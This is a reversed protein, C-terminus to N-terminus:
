YRGSISWSACSIRRDECPPVASTISLTTTTLPTKVSTSTQSTTVQHLKTILLKNVTQTTYVVTKKAAESRTLRNEYLIYKTTAAFTFPQGKNIADFIKKNTTIATSNITQISAAQTTKSIQTSPNPAEKSFPTQSQTQTPITVTSLQSLPSTPKGSLTAGNSFQRNIVTATTRNASITQLGHIAEKPCLGCSRSCLRSIVYSTGCYGLNVWTSCHPSNNVCDSLIFILNSLNEFSESSNKVFLSAM